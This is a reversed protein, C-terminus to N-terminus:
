EMRENEYICMTGIDEMRRWVTVGAAFMQRIKQMIHANATQRFFVETAQWYTFKSFLSLRSMDYFRNASYGFRLFFDGLQAVADANPTRVQVAFGDRRMDLYFGNGGTQTVASDPQMAAAEYGALVGAAELPLASQANFQAINFADRANADATTKVSELNADGTNKSALANGVATDYARGANATATNYNLAAANKTTDRALLANQGIVNRDRQSNAERLDIDITASANRNSIDLATQRNMNDVTLNRQKVIQTNFSYDTALGGIGHPGSQNNIKARDSETEIEALETDKFISLTTEASALNNTIDTHAIASHMSTYAHALSQGTGTVMSVLGQAATSIDGEVAAGLVSAASNVQGAVMDVATDIAGYTIDTSTHASNAATVNQLSQAQYDVNVALNAARTQRNINFQFTAKENQQDNNADLFAVAIENASRQTQNALNVHARSATNGAIVATRASDAARITQTYAADAANDTNTKTASAAANANTKATSASAVANDYATKNSAKGTSEATANSRYANDRATGASRQGNGYGVIAKQRQVALTKSVALDHRTAASMSLRYVPMNKEQFFSGAKPELVTNEAVGSETTVRWLYNAPVGGVGALEARLTCGSLLTATLKVHLRSTVQQIEVQTENGFLDTLVLSCYPSTYLKTLEAYEPPFAFKDRTLEINVALEKPQILEFPKGNIVGEGVTRIIKTPVIFVCEINQALHPQFTFLDEFFEYAWQAAVAYIFPGPNERSNRGLAQPPRNRANRVSRHGILNPTSDAGFNWEWGNVNESWAGSYSIPTASNTVKEAATIESILRLDYELAFCIAHESDDLLTPRNYTVIEGASNVSIDDATLHATNALPDALFQDPTAAHWMPAHGREVMGAQIDLRDFYTTWVDLKLTLRTTSPALQECDLVFFFLDRIGGDKEYDINGVTAALADRVILYNAGDAIDFPIPVKVTDNKDLRYNTELPESTYHQLDALATDRQQPTQWDVIQSFDEPFPVNCLTLTAQKQWRRYDFDNRWKWVNVGDLHPFQGARPTIHPYHRANM